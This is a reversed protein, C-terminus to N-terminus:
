FRLISEIVETGGRGIREPTASAFVCVQEGNTPIGGATAEPRFIWEYGDVEAGTWYGYTIASPVRGIPSVQTDYRPTLSERPSHLDGTRLM